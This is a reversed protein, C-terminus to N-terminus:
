DAAGAERLTTRRQELTGLVAQKEEIQALISSRDVADMPGADVLEGRLSDIERHLEALEGEIRALETADPDSPDMTVEEDAAPTPPVV